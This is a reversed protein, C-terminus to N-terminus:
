ASSNETCAITHQGVSCLHVYRAIYLPSCVTFAVCTFSGQVTCDLGFGSVRFGFGSVRFEFSSVRFGFGSVRFGFGPVRFGFGSIRFGSGSDRIGFGLMLHAARFDCPPAHVLHQGWVRM